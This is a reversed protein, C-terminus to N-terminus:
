RSPLGGLLSRFKPLFRAPVHNRPPADPLQHKLHDPTETFPRFTFLAGSFDPLPKAAFALHLGRWRMCPPAKMPNHWQAGPIMALSVRRPHRRGPAAPRTAARLAFIPRRESSEDESPLRHEPHPSADWVARPSRAGHLPAFGTRTRRDRPPASSRRERRLVTAIASKPRGDRTWYPGAPSPTSSGAPSAARALLLPERM